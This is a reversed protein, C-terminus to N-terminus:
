AGSSGAPRAHRGPGDHDRVVLDHLDFADHGSSTTEGPCASTRRVTKRKVASLRTLGDSSSDSSSKPSTARITPLVFVVDPPQEAAAHSQATGVILAALCMLLKQVQRPSVAQCGEGCGSTAVSM